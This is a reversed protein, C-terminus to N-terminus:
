ATTVKEPELIEEESLGTEEKIILISARSTLRNDPDNGRVWKAVTEFKMNMGRAIAYTLEDNKKFLQKVKKSFKPM